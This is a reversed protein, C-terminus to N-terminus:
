GTSPSVVVKNRGAAKAAYMADDVAKMLSSAHPTRETYEAVGLSATVQLIQGGCRLELAELERRLNEAREEAVSAATEPLLIAFEEGGYRVAIDSGRVSGRILDAIEKLVRDGADHGRTDNIKKFHDIDLLIVSFPTGKRQATMMERTLADWFYRRNYLGTLSDTVAQERLEDMVSRLKVDRAQLQGAMDDLAAGLQSLEERTPKIGTRAALDGSRVRRTMDLLVRIPGLVLHEAGFWASLILLLTLAAIGTLTQVLARHIDEYIVAKPMSVVVSIPALGEPTAGVRKVAHLRPVGTPDREDFLVKNANKMGDLVARNPFQEGAAAFLPPHQAIVTGNRDLITVVQGRGLATAGRRPLSEPHVGVLLAAVLEVRQQIEERAQAEAAARQELAVYISLAIIPLASAIVLLSVRSRTSLAELM